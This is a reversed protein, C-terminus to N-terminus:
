PNHPKPTVSAAKKEWMQQIQWLSTLIGITGQLEARKETSFSEWTRGLLSSISDYCQLVRGFLVMEQRIEEVSALDTTPDNALTENWVHFCKTEVQSM